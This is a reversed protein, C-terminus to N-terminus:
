LFENRSIYSFNKKKKKRKKRKEARFTGEQFIVLKKLRPSFLKMEWFILLVKKSFYLVNKLTSKKKKKKKKELKTQSTCRIARLDVVISIIHNLLLHYWIACRVVFVYSDRSIM